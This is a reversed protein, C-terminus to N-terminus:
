RPPRLRFRSRSLVCRVAPRRSRTVRRGAVSSARRGACSRGTEWRSCRVTSLWMAFSRLSSGSVVRLACARESSPRLIRLRAIREPASSHPRRARRAAPAPLTSEPRSEADTVIRAPRNAFGFSPDAAAGGRFRRARAIADHARWVCASSALSVVSAPDFIQSDVASKGFIAGPPWVCCALAM